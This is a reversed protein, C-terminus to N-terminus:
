NGHKKYNKISEEENHLDITISYKDSIAKLLISRVFRELSLNCGKAWEHILRKHKIKLKITIEAYENPDKATEKSKVLEDRVLKALEFCRRVKNLDNEYVLSVMDELMTESVKKSTLKYAVNHLLDHCQPCLNALNSPDDTGGLSRPVKHHIHLHINPFEGICVDCKFIYLNM